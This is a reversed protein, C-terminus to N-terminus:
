SYAFRSRDPSAFRCPWLGHDAAGGFLTTGYINGDSGCTVGAILFAGDAGGTFSHLAAGHGANDVRYVVGGGASGGSFATGFLMDGPGSCLVVGAQPYAGRPYPNFSHLVTEGARAPETAVAGVVLAFTFALVLVKNRESATSM